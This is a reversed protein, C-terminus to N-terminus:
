SYSNEEFFSKLRFKELYINKLLFEFVKFFALVEKM